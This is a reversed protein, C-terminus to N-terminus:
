LCKCHQGHLPRGIVGFGVMFKVSETLSPSEVNLFYIGAALGNVPINVVGGSANFSLTRLTKGGTTSVSIEVVEDKTFGSVKLNDKAPNPFLTLQGDPSTKLPFKLISITLM